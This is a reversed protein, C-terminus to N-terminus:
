VGIFQWCEILHHQISPTPRDYAKLRSGAVTDSAIFTGGRAHRRRVAASALVYPATGTPPPLTTNAPSTPRSKWTDRVAIRASPRHLISASVGTLLLLIAATDRCVPAAFHALVICLDLHLVLDPSHALCHADPM